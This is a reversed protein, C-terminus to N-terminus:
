ELLPSGGLEQLRQRRQERDGHFRLNLHEDAEMGTVVQAWLLIREPDDVFRALTWRQVELGNTTFTTYGDATLAVFSSLDGFPSGIPKATATEWLRVPGYRSWTLAIKGDASLAVARVERGHLLTSGIPKGTATDWLRATGAMGGTLAIKGNASLAVSWVPAPHQLPPRVEKGTATDWLRAPEGGGDSGTLVTKGDASLAGAIVMARKGHQLLRIQKGTASDWLRATEDVCGTLATKGDASLAVAVVNSQHQLPTEKGTTTDWLRAVDSACATIAVKADASLAVSEVKREHAPTTWLPKGTGVDCLLAVKDNGGTLCVKGDASIALASVLRFSDPSPSRFSHFLPNPKRPEKPFLPEKRPTRIVESAWGGVHLRMSELLRRNKLKAARTLLEAALVLSHAASKDPQVYFGNFILELAFEEAREEAEKRRQEALDASEKAKKEAKEAENQRRVALDSAAREAEYAVSLLATAITLAVLAVLISAAAVSVLTRHKGLWRRMKVTWPERWASVPEDDLWRQIEKALEGAGAYREDKKKKLAKLCVQELPAPVDREIWRPSPPADHIIQRSLWAWDTEEFPLRGTLIEYLIVGLAYVDTRRDIEDVQGAAQEPAMYAPTGLQTGPRTEAHPARTAPVVPDFNERQPAGAVKALGWDLVFVEGHKGLIVNLGKLDRHLVGRNHAYDIANCVTVLITLLRRLEVVGAKGQQRQAHFDRVADSLTPGEVFPMTYFPGGKAEKVVEFAPVINPHRLQATIRAEDCFRDRESPNLVRDTRPEKLAVERDLLTDRVRWVQGIGGKMPAGIVQFRDRPSTAPGHQSEGLDSERLEWAPDDRWVHGLSQRVADDADAVARISAAVDGHHNKLLRAIDQDLEDRNHPTIWRREVLLEPLPTDHRAAWGACADVFKDRDVFGRQLALVAFLLNRDSPWAPSDAM